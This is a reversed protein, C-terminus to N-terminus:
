LEKKIIGFFMYEREEYVRQDSDMSRDTPIPIGDVSVSFRGYMKIRDKGRFNLIMDRYEYLFLVEQSSNEFKVNSIDTAIKEGYEDELVLTIESMKGKLNNQYIPVKVSLDGNSSESKCGLFSVSFSAGSLQEIKVSEMIYGSSETESPIEGGSSMMRLSIVSSRSSIDRNFGFVIILSDRNSNTTVTYWEDEEPKIVEWVGDSKVPLVVRSYHFNSKIEDDVKLFSGIGSEQIIRFVKKTSVFALERGWLTGIRKVVIEHEIRDDMNPTARITSHLVWEWGDPISSEVHINGWMEPLDVTSGWKDIYITEEPCAFEEPSEYGIVLLAVSTLLLMVFCVTFSVVVRWKRKRKLENIKMEADRIHM